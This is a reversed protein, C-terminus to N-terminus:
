LSTRSRVLEVTIERNEVVALWLQQVTEADTELGDLVTYRQGIVEDRSLGAGRLLWPIFHGDSCRHM